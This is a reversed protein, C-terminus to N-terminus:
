VPLHAQIVNKRKMHPQLEQHLIKMWIVLFDVRPFNGMKKQNFRIQEWCNKKVGTMTLNKMLMMKLYKFSTIKVTSDKLHKKLLRPRLPHRMNKVKMKLQRPNLPHSRNKVKMQLQRPNLPHSRNKVKMQLKPNLRNSETPTVQEESENAATTSETPTVQEESENEASKSDITLVQKEVKNEAPTSQTSTVDQENAATTSETPRVQEESENEVLQSDMPSVQQQKQKEAPNSIITSVEQPSQADDRKEDSRSIEDDSHTPQDEPKGDDSHTPQDEPKEDDSHTPQQDEPKEDDSHTPQKDEPKEDDSHTPEKEEPKEDDDSHTPEKEEPKVDDTPTSIAEMNRDVTNGPSNPAEFLIQEESIERSMSEVLDNKNLTGEVESMVMQAQSNAAINDLQTEPIVLQSGQSLTVDTEDTHPRADSDQGITKLGYQETRWFGRRASSGPLSAHLGTMKFPSVETMQALSPTAVPIDRHMFPNLSRRPLPGEDTKSGQIMFALPHEEYPSMTTRRSTGVGGLVSFDVKVKDDEEKMPLVNKTATEGTVNGVNMQSLQLPQDEDIPQLYNKTDIAGTITAEGKCSRRLVRPSIKVGRGPQNQTPPICDLIEIDDDQPVSKEDFKYQDSQLVDPTGKATATHTKETKVKTMRFYDTVISQFYKRRDRSQKKRKRRRQVFDDLPEDFKDKRKRKALTPVVLVHPIVLEAASSNADDEMKQSKGKRRREVFSELSEEPEDEQKRKDGHDSLDVLEVLNNASDPIFIKM